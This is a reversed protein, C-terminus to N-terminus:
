AALQTASVAVGMMCRRVGASVRFRLVCGQQPMRGLARWELKKFVQQDAGLARTTVTGFNRGGDTSWDFMVQPDSLHTDSSNLGTGTVADLLVHDLTFSYPWMHTVPLRVEMVVNTGAADYASTSSEYLTGALSSGFITKGKFTAHASVTWYDYTASKREHWAQEVTDFTFSYNSGTITYFSHGNETWAFSRIGTPNTDAEIVRDIDYTSIKSASYGNLLYVGSFKGKEDTAAWCVSDLMQGGILATIEAVSGASYCGFQSNDQRVYGDAGADVFYEMSSEGFAIVENRRRALAVGKDPSSEASVFNLGDFGTDDIDSWNVQGDESITVFRGNHEVVYIPSPLDSDSGPTLTGGQYYSWQGDCVIMVQPNPARRNRAMTVLGDSALGGVLTAVGIPSVSYVQRGARVLLENGVALMADVGGSAGSLTSFSTLGNLAYLGFQHKAGEGLSEVYCNILRSSAELDYRGRNTGRTLNIPQPNTM